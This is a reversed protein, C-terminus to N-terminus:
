LVFGGISNSSPQARPAADDEDEFASEITSGIQASRLLRAVEPDRRMAGVTKGKYRETADAGRSVLLKLIDMRPDKCYDKSVAMHIPRAGNPAPLNVDAGMDLLMRVAQTDDRMVAVHLASHGDANRVDIDSWVDGIRSLAWYEARAAARHIVRDGDAYVFDQLDGTRAVVEAMVLNQVSYPLGGEKAEDALTIGDRDPQFVDAGRSMLLTAVERQGARVRYQLPTWGINDCLLNPDAGVELLSATEIERIDEHLPAFGIRSKANPDVGFKRVMAVITGDVTLGIEGRVFNRTNPQKSASATAYAGLPLRGDPLPANVDAGREALLELVIPDPCRAAMQLPTLGKISRANIDFGMRVLEDLLVPLKENDPKISQNKALLKEIFLTLPTHGSNLRRNFDVGLAVGNRLAIRWGIDLDTHVADVAQLMAHGIWTNGDAMTDYKSMGLNVLWEARRTMGLMLCAYLVGNGRLKAVMAADDNICERLRDLVGEVFARRLERMAAARAEAVSREADSSIYGNSFEMSPFLDSVSGLWSADVPVGHERLVDLCQLSLEVGRQELDSDTLDFFASAVHGISAQERLKEYPRRELVFRIMEPNHSRVALLLAEGPDSQLGTFGADVLARAMEVDGNRFANFGIFSTDRKADLLVGNDGVLRLFRVDRSAIAASLYEGRAHPSSSRIQGPSRKLFATLAEFLEDLDVSKKGAEAFALAFSQGNIINM